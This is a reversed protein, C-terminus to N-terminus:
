AGGDGAEAEVGDILDAVLGELAGRLMSGGLTAVTGTAEVDVRYTVASRDAALPELRVPIVARVAGSISRPRGDLELRLRDPAEEVVLADVDTRVTLFPTRTLLVARFRGPGVAEVSEAATVLRALRAPDDLISRIAPVGVALETRHVEGEVM